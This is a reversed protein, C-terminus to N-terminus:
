LGSGASPRCLLQNLYCAYLKSVSQLQSDHAQFKRELEDIKKALASHNAIMQRLRVFARMIAINVQVARASKLVSSLMAVGEETFAHPLTRRGGRGANAIANQSTLFVTEQASLEFMFDTPFRKCNRKVQENLRSTPVRYLEALDADLM